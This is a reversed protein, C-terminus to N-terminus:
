IGFLLGVALSFLDYGGLSIQAQAFPKIAGLDMTAGGILNIALETNGTNNGGFSGFPTDVEPVDVSFRSIGLGVGAYPAFDFDPAELFYLAGLHLSWFNTNEETFYFDFAANVDVPLTEVGGRAELGLFLDEIDGALDYGLRPGLEIAVQAQAPVAIVALFVAWAAARLSANM